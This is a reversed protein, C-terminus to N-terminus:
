RMDSVRQVPQGSSRRPPRGTAPRSMTLGRRIKTKRASEHSGDAFCRTVLVTKKSM